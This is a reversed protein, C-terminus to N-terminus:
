DQRGVMMGLHIVPRQRDSGREHDTWPRPPGKRFFLDGPLWSAYEPVYNYGLAEIPELSKTQPDIGDSRSM